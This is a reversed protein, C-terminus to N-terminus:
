GCVTWLFSGNALPTLQRTVPGFNGFCSSMNKTHNFGPADNPVGWFDGRQGIDPVVSPCPNGDVEELIQVLYGDSQGPLALALLVALGKTLTVASLLTTASTGHASASKLKRTSHTRTKSNTGM